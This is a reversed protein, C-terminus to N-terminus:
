RSTTPTGRVSSPSLRARASSSRRRRWKSSSLCAFARLDRTADSAIPSTSSPRSLGLASTSHAPAQEFAQAATHAQDPARSVVRTSHSQPRSAARLQSSASSTFLRRPSIAHQQRQQTSSCAPGAARDLGLRRACGNGPRRQAATRTHAEGVPMAARRREARQLRQCCSEVISKSWPVSSWKTTVASM